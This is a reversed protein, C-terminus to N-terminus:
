HRGGGGGPLRRGPRALEPAPLRPHRLGTRLAAPRGSGVTGPRRALGTRSPVAVRDPGPPLALPRVAVARVAARLLM